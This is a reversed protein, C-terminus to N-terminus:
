RAAWRKTKKEYRVYTETKRKGRQVTKTKEKTMKTERPEIQKATQPLRNRPKMPETNSQKTRCATGLIIKDGMQPQTM